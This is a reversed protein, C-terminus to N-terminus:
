KQIIKVKFASFVITRPPKKGKDTKRDEPPTNRGTKKTDSGMNHLMHESSNARRRGM